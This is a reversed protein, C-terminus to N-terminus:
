HIDNTEKTVELIGGFIHFKGNIVWSSMGTRSHPKSEQDTEVLKWTKNNLDFIWLDNLKNNDEDQGGFVYLLDGIVSM